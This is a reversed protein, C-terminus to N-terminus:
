LCYVLHYSVDLTLHTRSDESHAPSGVPGPPPPLADIRQQEERLKQGDKGPPLQRDIAVYRDDPCDVNDGYSVHSGDGVGLGSLRQAADVRCMYRYTEKDQYKQRRKICVIATILIAVLVATVCGLIVIIKQHFGLALFPNSSLGSPHAGGGVAMTRNIILNMTAVASKQASALAQDKVVILLAFRDGHDLTLDHAISMAGSLPDIDFYNNDNGKAIYYSLKANIGLDADEAHVRTFIYGEPAKYPVQVTNNGPKPFVIMPANDNKDAIYVTINATTSLYPHAVNTAVVTFFYQSQHERDLVKKTTIEGSHPDIVFTDTGDSNHGYDRISFTFENYPEEDADFAGVTGIETNIPQNEFLGLTIGRNSSLRHKMTLM